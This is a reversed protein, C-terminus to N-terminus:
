DWRFAGRKWEYLLGFLLLLFFLGMGALLFGKGVLEGNELALVATGDTAAVYFARAWPWLFVVEVAFLLFLRAVVYVRPRFRRVTDQM